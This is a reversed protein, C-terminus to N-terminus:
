RIEQRSRPPVAVFHPGVFLSSGPFDSDGGFETTPGRSCIRPDGAFKAHSRRLGQANIQALRATLKLVLAGASESGGKPDGKRIGLVLAGASESGGKPDGKPDRQDGRGGIRAAAVLRASLDIGGGEIAFLNEGM